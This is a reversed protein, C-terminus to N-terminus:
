RATGGVKKNIIKKNPESYLTLTKLDISEAHYFVHKVDLFM